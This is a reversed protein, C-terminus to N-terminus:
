YSRYGKTQPWKLPTFDVELKVVEGVKVNFEEVLRKAKFPNKSSNWAFLHLPNVCYKNCCVKHISLGKLDVYSVKNHEMYALRAAKVSKGEAALWIFEEKNNIICGSKLAEHEDPLQVTVM